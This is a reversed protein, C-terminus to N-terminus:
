SFIGGFPQGQQRNTSGSLFISGLGELGSQFAQGRRLAGQGQAAGIGQALQAQGSAATSGIGGLGLAASLPQQTLAGLQNFREGQRQVDLGQSFEQLARLRNSGGLAGTASARQDLSRFGESRLRRTAPTELTGQAATRAEEGELGLFARQQRQAPTEGRIFPTLAQETRGFQERLLDIGREGQQTQAQTAEKASKAGLLSSGVTAVTALGGASGLFSGIAGIAGPM